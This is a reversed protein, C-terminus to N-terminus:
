LLDLSGLDRIAVCSRTAMAMFMADSRETPVATAYTSGLVTIMPGQLHGLRYDLLSGFL